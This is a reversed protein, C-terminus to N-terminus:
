EGSDLRKMIAKLSREIALEDIGVLQCVRMAEDDTIEADLDQLRLLLEIEKFMRRMFLMYNSHRQRATRWIEPMGMFFGLRKEEPTSDDHEAALSFQYAHCNFCQYGSVQMPGYGM